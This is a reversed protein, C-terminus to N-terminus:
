FKNTIFLRRYQKDYRRLCEGIIHQYTFAQVNPRKIQTRPTRIQAGSSNYKLNHNFLTIKYSPDSTLRRNDFYTIYRM